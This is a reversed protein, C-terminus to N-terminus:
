SRSIVPPDLNSDSDWEFFQVSHDVWGFFGHEAGDLDGPDFRFASTYELVSRESCNDRNALRNDCGHFGGVEDVTLTAFWIPRM